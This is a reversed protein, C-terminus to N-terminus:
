KDGFYNLLFRRAGPTEITHKQVIDSSAGLEKAVSQWDTRMTSKASKWSAKFLSHQIGDHDGIASKLKNELLLQDKYLVDIKAKTLALDKALDAAYQDADIISGRSRPYHINLYDKSGASGDIDPPIKTEVHEKWFKEAVRQMVSLASDDRPIVYVRYDSGGILAAVHALNLGLLMMYWQVQCVYNVPIQDTGAEGWHHANMSGATKVELVIDDAIYDPTGGFIGDQIFKGQVINRSNDSSWRLAIVPELDKGWRMVESERIPESLGMKDLYVSMPSGFLSIGLISAIDTGTICGRRLDLWEQHTM